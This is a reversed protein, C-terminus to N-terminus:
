PRRRLAAAYARKLNTEFDETLAIEGAAILQLMAELLEDFRRYRRNKRLRAIIRDQRRREAAVKRMHAVVLDHPLLPLRRRRSM